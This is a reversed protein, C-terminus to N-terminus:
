RRHSEARVAPLAAALDAASAGRPRFAMWTLPRWKQHRRHVPLQEGGTRCGALAAMPHSGLFGSNELAQLVAVAATHPQPRAVGGGGWRDPTLNLNRSVRNTVVCACRRRTRVVHPRPNPPWCAVALRATNFAVQAGTELRDPLVKPVPELHSLARTYRGLTRPCHNSPIRM